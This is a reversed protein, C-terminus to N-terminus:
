RMVGPLGPAPDLNSDHTFTWSGKPETARISGTLTYTAGRRSALASAVAVKAGVSPALVAEVVDASEPGISIDTTAQVQGADEGAVYLKADVAAFRTSVNSFNQLRLTLKWRGDPLVALEQISAKPPNIVKKPGSACASLLALFAIASVTRLRIRMAPENRQKRQGLM